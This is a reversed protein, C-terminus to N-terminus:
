QRLPPGLLRASGSSPDEGFQAGDVGVSMQGDSITISIDHSVERVVQTDGRQITVTGAYHGTLTGSTKQSVSFRSGRPGVLDTVSLDLTYDVSRTVNEGSFSHNGERSYTGNLTITDTNIGSAVLDGGIVNRSATIMPTELTGTGEVIHLSMSRATDGEVVYRRQPLGDVDLFQVEYVKHISFNRTGTSDSRDHDITVTWTGTTEDYTRSVTQGSIKAASTMSGVAAFSRVDNMQDLIGGTDEAVLSSVSSAVEESTFTDQESTANSGSSDCGVAFLVLFSLLALPFLNMKM